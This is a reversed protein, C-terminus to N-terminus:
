KEWKWVVKDGECPRWTSKPQNVGGNHTTRPESWGSVMLLLMRSLSVPQLISPYGATWALWWVSAEWRWQSHHNLALCSGVTVCTGCFSIRRTLPPAREKRSSFTCPPISHLNKLVLSVLSLISDKPFFASYNYIHLKSLAYIWLTKLM